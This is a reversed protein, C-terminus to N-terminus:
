INCSFFAYFHNSFIFKGSFGMYLDNYRAKKKEKNYYKHQNEDIKICLMTDNILKRLDIRRRQTCDCDGVFLTKDHYFSDYKSTIHHIVKLRKSKKRIDATKPNDPFLNSFCHTCYRDYKQNAWTECPINYPDKNAQCKKYKIDIM